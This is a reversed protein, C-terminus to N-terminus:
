ADLGGLAKSVGGCVDVHIVYNTCILKVNIAGGGWERQIPM